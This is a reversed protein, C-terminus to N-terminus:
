SSNCKEIDRGCDILNIVREELTGIMFILFYFMFEHATQISTCLLKQLVLEQKSQKHQEYRPRSFHHKISTIAYSSRHPM